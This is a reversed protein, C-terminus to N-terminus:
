KILKCFREYLEKVQKKLEEMSGSNDIVFQAYKCKEEVKMQADIRKKADEESCKDRSVLRELQVKSDCKVVVVFHTFRYMGSEILLPADLILIKTGNWWHKFIMKQVEWLIPYFMIRNLKKRADPNSFIFDGLKKRDIGQQNPLAFESGFESIIKQYTSSPPQVVQRSIQDLDIVPINYDQQLIKSCSSKGCAIGGTLGIIKM